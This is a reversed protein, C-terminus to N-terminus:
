EWEILLHHKANFKNTISKYDFYEAQHTKFYHEKYEQSSIHIIGCIVCTILGIMAIHQFLMEIKDKQWWLKYNYYLIGFFTDKADIVKPAPKRYM